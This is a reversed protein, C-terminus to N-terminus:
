SDKRVGRICINLMGPFASDNVFSFLSLSLHMWKNRILKSIRMSVATMWTAMIDCPDSICFLQVMDVLVFFSFYFFIDLPMIYLWRGFWRLLVCMYKKKQKFSDWTLYKGASSNLSKGGGRWELLWLYNSLIDDPSLASRQWLWCIFSIKLEIFLCLTFCQWLVRM